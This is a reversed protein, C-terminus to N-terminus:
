AAAASVLNDAAAGAGQTGKIRDLTQRRENEMWDFVRYKVSLSGALYSSRLFYLSAGFPTFIALGRVAQINLSSFFGLADNDPVSLSSTSVLAPSARDEDM